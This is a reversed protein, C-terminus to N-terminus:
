QNARALGKAALTKLIDELKVNILRAKVMRSARGTIALEVGFMKKMVSAVQSAPMNLKFRAFKTDEKITGETLGAASVSVASSSESESACGKVCVNRGANEECYTYCGGDCTISGSCPSQCSCSEKKAVKKASAKAFSRTRPPHNKKQALTAGCPLSSLVFIVACCLLRTKHKM